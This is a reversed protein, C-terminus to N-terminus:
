EMGLRERNINLGTRIWNARKLINRYVQGGSEGRSKGYIGFKIGNQAMPLDTPHSYHNDRLLFFM